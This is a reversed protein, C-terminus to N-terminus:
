KKIKIKSKKIFFFFSIVRKLLGLCFESFNKKEILVEKQNSIENEVSLHIEKERNM